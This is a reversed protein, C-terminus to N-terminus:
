RTSKREPSSERGASIEGALIQQPSDGSRRYVRYLYRLPLTPGAVPLNNTWTLVVGQGTVRGAFDRPPPLTRALSVQVQNSLGAGRGDANLVEVAYTIFASPNDAHLQGALSDNYSRAAKQKSSPAAIPTPQAAAEGVPIGCKMLKTQLGRCIRTSGVSRNTKRDTTVSPVTWTLTIHDGKRTARLDSPPKPLDLSPPQPPAITACATFVLPAVRGLLLKPTSRRM